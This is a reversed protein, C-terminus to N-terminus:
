FIGVILSSIVFNPTLYVSLVVACGFSSADGSSSSSSGQLNFRNLGVSKVVLNEYIVNWLYSFIRNCFIWQFIVRCSMYYITYFKLGVVYTTIPQSNLLLLWKFAHPLFSLLSFTLSILRRIYIYIYIRIYEMPLTRWTCRVYAVTRTPLSGYVVGCVTIQLHTPPLAVRGLSTSRPLKSGALAPM